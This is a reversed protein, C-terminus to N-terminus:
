DLGRVMVTPVVCRDLVTDVTSGFLTRHITKHGHSGIVLLDGRPAVGLLGTAAGCEILRGSVDCSFRERAREIERDLLCAADVHALDREQASDPRAHMYAYLWAHVLELEAGHRDAADGAWQLAQRSAASGDVGVVVRKVSTGVESNPVVVVSCPSHRLVQRATDGLWSGAADQHSGKGVVVLDDPRLHDLLVEAAGDLSIESLVEIFPHSVAIVQQMEWLRAQTREFASSAEATTWPIGATSRMPEPCCSIIRLLAGRASAEAAAWQVAESSSATGDFGVNIQKTM